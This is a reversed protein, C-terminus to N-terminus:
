TFRFLLQSAPPQPPEGTAPDDPDSFTRFLAVPQADTGCRQWIPATLVTAETLAEQTTILFAQAQEGATQEIMRALSRARRESVTVFLCQGYSSGFRQRYGDSGVYALFTKVKERALRTQPQTSRDIEVFLRKYVKDKYAACFAGDPEFRKTVQRGDLTYTAKLLPDKRQLSFWHATKWSRVSFDPNKQAALTLQIHVDNVIIDHPIQAFRPTRLPVDTLEVLQRWAVCLAAKPTPISVAEPLLLRHRYDLATLYGHKVLYRLRLEARWISIGMLRAVQRPTLLNEYEFHAALIREDEDTPTYPLLRKKPLPSPM